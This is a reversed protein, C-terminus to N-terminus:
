HEEVMFSSGRVQFQSPSSWLCLMEVFVVSIDKHSVNKDIPVMMREVELGQLTMKLIQRLM